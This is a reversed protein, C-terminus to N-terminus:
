RGVLGGPQTRLVWKGDYRSEQEVKDRDIEFNQEKWQARSVERVRVAM